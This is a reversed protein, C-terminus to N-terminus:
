LMRRIGLLGLGFALLWLPEPEDVTIWPRGLMLDQRNDNHLIFAEQTKPSEYLGSLPENAIARWIDVQMNASERADVPHGTIAYSLISDLTNAVAKGFVTDADLVEYEVVSGFQLFEGLEACWAVDAQQDLQINYQGAHIDIGPMSVILPAFTYQEVKAPITDAWVPSGAALMLGVLNGMKM